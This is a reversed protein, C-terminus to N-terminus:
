TVIRSMDTPPEGPEVAPPHFRGREDENAEHGPARNRPRSTVLKAPRETRESVVPM